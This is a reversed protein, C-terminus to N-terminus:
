QGPTVGYVLVTHILPFSISSDLLIKEGALKSEGYFNVPAPKENEDLPGHSGDFFLILPFTFSILIKKKCVNVLFRVSEANSLMCLERESECQDVQTMAATNIVVDPSTKSIVDEVQSAQTIDMFHFEGSFSIPKSKATAILRHDQRSSILDVLKQGLLGNAGTVLIRM